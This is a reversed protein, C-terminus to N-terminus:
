KLPTISKEYIRYTKVKDLALKELANRIKLNDELIYNAELRRVKRSLARFIQLYLLVDLGRGHYEPLVALGFLRYETLRKVGFLLTLFGLPLLRGGIRRLIVNLDPFGLAFGIPKGRDEVFWIADPDAIPRLKRFMEQFEARDLPVYGWNDKLAVNSIELISDADRSLDKLSLRRVGFGPNRSLLREAFSWFRGPIQYDRDANAEYALLDKAKAYGLSEMFTNYHPPNYPAMFVPPAQFGEVLFGWSESIPHIPGRVRAMGRRSLWSVAAEDLAAAVALDDVCEFAGFFGTASGYFENFNRDIYVLSRGLVTSGEEALLLVYDSHGLIANKAPSYAGKEDAWLPPAWWPDDRYLTRPFSVFRKLDRHSAAERVQM